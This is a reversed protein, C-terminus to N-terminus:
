IVEVLAEVEVGVRFPLAHVGVAARAHRGPEDFVEVMLESAGNAVIHQEGFEATSNVFVGLRVIRKVRDLDGDLAAKVQALVALACQRAARQGDAVTLEQGVKGLFAPQGAVFPIQGSVYLLPGSRVTPVYAAAPVPAPPLTIGLQDLRQDIFGKSM